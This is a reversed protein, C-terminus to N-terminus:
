REWSAVLFAAYSWTLDRAGQMYGNHRNIQESMSGDNASHYRVRELFDDGREHLKALLKDFLPQGEKLVAGYTIDPVLNHIFGYNWHDVTIKKDSRIGKAVRYHYEAMGSTLLLWPSGEGFGTGNYRDEEYRGIATGPMGNSNIGYIRKFTEILRFATAMAKSHQVPFFGDHTDGHLIALISSADLNSNKYDVGEVRDLTTEIYGRNDSWHKKIEISILDAQERYWTAAGTDGLRAALTAGDILAKRQMMRTYFHQGKVEEWLDFNAERWHHSTYELDAKIVTYAPLESAYLKERVLTEKGEGLLVEAWRILTIARIAPGDNQPRGWGKNYPDGNAEFLPEGLGGSPNNTTQNKRSFDVYDMMRQYYFGRDHDTGANQYFSVVLNMTLAADRIWHRFYDPEYKSPSAIVAGTASGPASINAFMKNAAIGREQDIWTGLSVRDACTMASASISFFFVILSATLSLGRSSGM